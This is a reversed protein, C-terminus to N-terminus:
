IYHGYLSTKIHVSKPKTSVIITPDEEYALSDMLTFFFLFRPSQILMKDIGLRKVWEFLVAFALAEAFGVAAGVYMQEPTNFVLYLPDFMALVAAINLGWIYYLKAPRPYLYTFIYWVAVYLVVLREAPVAPMQNQEIPCTAPQFNNSPGFASRAGTSVGWDALMVVTMLFYIYEYHVLTIGISIYTLYTPWYYFQIFFETIISTPNQLVCNAAFM